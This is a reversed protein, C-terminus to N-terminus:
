TEAAAELLAQPKGVESAVARRGPGNIDQAGDDNWGSSILNRGCLGRHVGLWARRHHLWCCPSSLYLSTQRGRLPTHALVKPRGIM